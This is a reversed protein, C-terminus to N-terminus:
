NTVIKPQNSICIAGGKVAVNKCELIFCKKRKAGHTYCTGGKKAEKNCGLVSCKKNKRVAGHKTCVGGNVAVNSCELSYNCKQLRAGHSVCVGEVRAMKSCGPISCRKHKSKKLSVSSNRIPDTTSKEETYVETTEDYVLDYVTKLVAATEVPLSSCHYGDLDNFFDLADHSSYIKGDQVTTTHYCSEKTTAPRIMTSRVLHKTSIDSCYIDFLEAALDEISSNTSNDHTMDLFRGSYEANESINSPIDDWCIDDILSDLPSYDVTVEEEIDKGNPSENLMVLNLFHNEEDAFGCGLSNGIDSQKYSNSM